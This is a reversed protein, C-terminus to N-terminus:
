LTPTLGAALNERALEVLIRSSAEDALWGDVRPNHLKAKDRRCFSEYSRALFQPLTLLEGVGRSIHHNERKFLYSGQAGYRKAIPPYVPFIDGRALDDIDYYHANTARPAFGAAELLKKAVDCMVFGMPHVSSYMFVGRRSWSMLEASFDLGFKGRATEVLERSAEGWMDLYGVAEFVNENFLANALDLSLGKLYAFLCLASQYPGLPSDVYGHPRMPDRVFVLDPHFAAFSIPPFLIANPTLRVFEETGGGRLSGSVFEHAFVYDYAELTRALLALSARSQGIVTFRDITAGPELLKMGYAVGFSQCNGVVAIRPGDDGAPRGAIRAIRPAIAHRSWSRLIEKDLQSLM